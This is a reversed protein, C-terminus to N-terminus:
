RLDQAFTYPGFKDGSDKQWKVNVDFLSSARSVLNGLTQVPHFFTPIICM